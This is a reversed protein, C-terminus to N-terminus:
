ASPQGFPRLAARVQKNTKLDDESLVTQTPCLHKLNKKKPQEEPEEAKEEPRSEEQQPENEDLNSLLVFKKKKEARKKSLEDRLEDEDIKETEPEEGFGSLMM